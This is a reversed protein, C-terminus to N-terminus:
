EPTLHKGCVSCNGEDTAKPKSPADGGCFQCKVM